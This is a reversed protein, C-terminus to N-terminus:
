KKSLREVALKIYGVDVEMRITRADIASLIAIDRELREIRM